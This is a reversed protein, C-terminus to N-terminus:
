SKTTITWWIWWWLDTGAIWNFRSRLVSSKTWFGYGHNIDLILFNRFYNSDSCGITEHPVDDPQMEIIHFLLFFWFFFECFHILYKYHSITKHFNLKHLAIIIKYLYQISTNKVNRLHLVSSHTHTHSSETALSFSEVPTLKTWSKCNKFSNSKVAYHSYEMSIHMLFKSLLWKFSHEEIVFANLSSVTYICSFLIYNM